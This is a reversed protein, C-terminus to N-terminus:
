RTIPEGHRADGGDGGCERGIGGLEHQEVEAKRVAVTRVHAARQRAREATGM